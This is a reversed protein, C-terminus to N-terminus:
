SQIEQAKKSLLCMPKLLGGRKDKYKAPQEASNQDSLITKNYEIDLAHKDSRNLFATM